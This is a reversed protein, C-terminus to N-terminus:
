PVCIYTTDLIVYQWNNNVHMRQNNRGLWKAKSVLWTILDGTRSPRITICGHVRAPAHMCAAGQLVTQVSSYYLADFHQLNNTGPDELSTAAIPVRLGLPHAGVGTCARQIQEANNRKINTLLTNYRELLVIRAVIGDPLGGPGRVDITFLDWM